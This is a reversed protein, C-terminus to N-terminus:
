HGSSWELIPIGKQRTSLTRSVRGWVLTGYWHVGATMSGQTRTVPELELRLEPGSVPGPGRLDQM